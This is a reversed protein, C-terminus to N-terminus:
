PSRACRFGHDAGRNDPTSWLRLAARVDRAGSVWSGGRLLYNRFDQQSATWEWVNGAMDACGYPSDGRPSFKGVPTTTGVMKNFNCRTVDPAEDGWPYSRGDTGRAAKEWEEETPLRANAWRCFAQAENWSVNVVPHDALEPPMQGGPWHSPAAQGTAEVFEAYQENTVPYRAIQFAPLTRKEKNDGYLFEGAPATVWNEIADVPEGALRKLQREAKKKRKQAAAARAKAQALKEAEKKLEALIKEAEMAEAELQDASADDQERSSEAEAKARAMRDAAARAADRSLREREIQDLTLNKAQAEEALHRTQSHAALLAAAANAVRRSDDEALQKLAELASLALGPNSGRLLQGLDGVVAERVSPLPHELTQSLAPPLPIPEVAPPRPNRAIVIKGEVDLAWKRPRQDSTEQRIRDLVYDYLEDITIQGDGDLDAEGTDLGHTLIRTFVSPRAQGAVHDGEFAYQLADSATLIAYGRGDFYEQTGLSQDAKFTMGRAFAGSYCCDLLLVQQRAWSGRMMENVVQAKIATSRLRDHRTNPMAFYLQGDTDKVGHGSFYLLALDDRQRETFFAEIEEAVKPSPENLLTRVEFGGIAADQLVRALAAADQPPAILKRLGADATYDWSAIILAYRKEAM